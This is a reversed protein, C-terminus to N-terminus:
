RSLWARLRELQDALVNDVPGAYAGAGARIYGGVVYSQVIETGSGEAPALSWSLTAVVAEAQLPGLGGQLRLMEGPEAYVVRLHEVTGGGVLAECMCGGARLELALNGTLGSYTHAPDWWEGIRGLADYAEAPTVPVLVRNESAFGHPSSSIIEAVAPAAPTSLTAALLILKLVNV